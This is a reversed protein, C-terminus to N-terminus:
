RARSRSPSPRSLRPAGPTSYTHSAVPGSVVIGDGFDITSAVIEGDNDSSGITSATVTLPAVGTLPTVSLAAVPLENAVTYTIPESVKNALSPKGVAKVYVTYSNPAFAFPQLDLQRTGASFYGLKMLNTGDLTIFVEFHDLTSQAGTISWTLIHGSVAGSITVCNEIGPEISTGEEYDNWTV